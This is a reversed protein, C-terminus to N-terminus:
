KRRVVNEFCSYKIGMAARDSADLQCDILKGDSILRLYTRNSPDYGGICIPWLYLDAMQMLPSSKSKTRFEYLTRNLEDVSLPAYKGSTGQSFPMGAVKLTDYYARMRKDVDRDGREVYVRLKADNQLAIKAAREVVIAFATKSLEWRQRYTERYRSNYGPRDIVCGMGILEPRAMLGYLDDLFAAQKQVDKGLFAFAGKKARIDSSHLFTRDRDLEWRAYFDRHADKFNSEVAEEILIGGLGFWDYGHAPLTTLKDPNRTGSDDLYLCYTKPM